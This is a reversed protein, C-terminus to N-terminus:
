KSEDAYPDWVVGENWMVVVCVVAFIGLIAYRYGMFDQGIVRLYCEICRLISTVVFMAVVLKPKWLKADRLRPMLVAGWFLVESVIGSFSFIQNKTTMLLVTELVFLAIGLYLALNRAKKSCHTLAYIWQDLM